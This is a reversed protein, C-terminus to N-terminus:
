GVKIATVLGGAVTISGAPLPIFGGDAADAGFSGTCATDPANFNIKNANVNFTQCDVTINGDASGTIVSTAGKGSSLKWTGGYNMQFFSGDALTYTLSGDSDIFLNSTSSHQITITKKAKNVRVFNGTSDKFGYVNPYDEDAFFTCMNEANFESAKYFPMYMDRTPFYVKVSSGVEPVSFMISNKSNGLFVNTSPYCWPLNEDPSDEVMAYSVQVRGLMMPDLNNVVLGEYEEADSPVCVDINAAVPKIM